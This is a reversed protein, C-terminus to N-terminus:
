DSFDTAFHRTDILLHPNANLFTTSLPECYDAVEEISILDQWEKLQSQELRDRSLADKAGSGIFRVM